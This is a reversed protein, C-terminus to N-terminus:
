ETKKLSDMVSKLSDINLSYASKDLGWNTLDIKSELEDEIADPLAPFFDIGTMKEIDDVTTAFAILPADSEVNKMWFAIMKIDSGYFDLVIKYYSQPVPIEMKKKSGKNMIKKARTTLVPGTIVYLKDFNAAWDRVQLELSKWVGRNFDKDQPSVNTMYFTEEMADESFAMDQAPLLHGRDYGSRTYDSSTVALKPDLKPDPRFRLDERSATGKLVMDRSIEYAVWEPQKHKESYSLSYYSHTIIENGNTATPLYDVLGFYKPIGKTIETNNNKETSTEDGSGGNFFYLAAMIIAVIIGGITTNNKLTPKKESM